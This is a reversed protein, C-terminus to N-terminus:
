LRKVMFGVGDDDDDDDNDDLAAAAAAAVDLITAGSKGPKMFVVLIM